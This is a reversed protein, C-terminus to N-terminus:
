NCLKTRDYMETIQVELRKMANFYEENNLLDDIGSHFIESVTENYDPVSAPLYDYTLGKIDVKFKCEFFYSDVSDISHAIETPFLFRNSLYAQHFDDYADSLERTSKFFFMATLAQKKNIATDFYVSDELDKLLGHEYALIKLQDEEILLPNNTSFFLFQSLITQIKRETTHIHVWITNIKDLQAQEYETIRSTDLSFTTKIKKLEKHTKIAFITLITTTVISLGSLLFVILDIGDYKM